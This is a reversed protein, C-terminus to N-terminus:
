TRTIWGTGADISDLALSAIQSGRGQFSEQIAGRSTYGVTTRQSGGTGEIFTLKFVDFSTILTRLPDPDSANNVKLVSINFTFGDSVVVSHERTSNLPMIVEKTPTLAQDLGNVVATLTAATSDTLAGATGVTQGTLIVSTLHRGLQYLPTSAM